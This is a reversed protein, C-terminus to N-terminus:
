EVMPQMLSFAKAVTEPDKQMNSSFVAFLRGKPDIMFFSATHDVSYNGDEDEKELKYQAWMQKTLAAIEEPTGTAGLFDKHFYPVYEKLIEPTDRKPDVSIFLAQTRDLVGPYNKLQEFVESLFGLSTPCVDPCHTYGYFIFTWHNKLQELGYPNGSQDILKFPTLPKPEPILLGRLEAPILLPPTVPGKQWLIFISILAGLFLVAQIIVTKRYKTITETVIEGGIKKLSAYINSM